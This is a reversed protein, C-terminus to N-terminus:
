LTVGDRQIAELLRIEENPQHPHLLADGDFVWPQIHLGTDFLIPYSDDVLTLQESVPDDVRDVFVAVDADSDPRHDGRARSGFLLVGKLRNGYRRVLRNKFAELADQMLKDLM